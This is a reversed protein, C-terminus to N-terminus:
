PFIVKKKRGVFGKVIECPSELNCLVHVSFGNEAISDGGDIFHFGQYLCVRSLMMQMM